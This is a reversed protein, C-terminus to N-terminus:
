KSGYIRPIEIPTATGYAYLQLPLYVIVHIQMTIGHLSKSMMKNLKLHM